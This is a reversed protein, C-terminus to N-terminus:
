PGGTKKQIEACPKPKKNRNVRLSEAKRIKKCSNKAAAAASRLSAYLM